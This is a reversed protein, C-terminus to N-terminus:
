IVGQLKEEMSPQQQEVQKNWLQINYEEPELVLRGLRAQRSRGPDSKKGRYITVGCNLPFKNKHEDLFKEKTWREFNAKLALITLSHTVVLIDEPVTDPKIELKNLVKSLVGGKSYNEVYNTLVDKPTHVLGGHERIVMGVFDRTRKRVDLLSEGGEQRFEYQSSLKYLLAQQPNFVDMIRWDGYIAARGHERERIRDDELVRVKKLEPWGEQIGELTQKTRVYPSVYITKPLPVKTHLKEGTQRAQEFGWDTLRTSYDGYDPTYKDLIGIAMEKLKASPFEGRAYSTATLKGHEEEFLERFEEYGEVKETKHLNYETEGHRILTITNPWKQM